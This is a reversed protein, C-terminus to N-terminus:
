PLLTWKAFLRKQRGGCIINFRHTGIANRWISSFSRCMQWANAQMQMKLQINLMCRKESRIIQQRDADIGTLTEM